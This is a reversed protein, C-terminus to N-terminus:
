FVGIEICGPRLIDLSSSLISNRWALNESARSRADFQHDCSPVALNVESILNVWAFVTGFIESAATLFAMRAM